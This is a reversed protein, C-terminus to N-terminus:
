AAEGGDPDNRFQLHLEPKIQRSKIEHEVKDTPVAFREASRARVEAAREASGDPLALTRFTFPDAAAGGICPRCAAVFGPLRSLDRAGLLPDFFKALAAGDDPSCAFTIKTRANAGLADRMERTLQGLHQHALVLCLGYARAEALVDEFSRPLSMYNHMEDVYLAVDARKAEPMRSREMVWQWVQAIIMGGLIRSTDEGLLGKPIRVLVIGGSDLFEFLDRKPYSQGVIPRIAGRLLFARVKNLMPAISAERTAVTQRDFQEWFLRLAPDDLRRRIQRRWDENTLLVPIDALTAGPILGLTLCASRMIDDSRPGWSHEYFRKFMSVIHDVVLDLDDGALINLGVASSKDSPDILCVREESGEPLRELIAEILDGKPDIVMAARGAAADQLVMRAVLTSKGTGTEGILHIHHRSDALSIAVPRQNIGSNSVGLERGSTPLLKPPVLSRARGVDIGAIRSTPLTAIRGLEPVSLLFGHEVRRTSIADWARSRRSRLGNRGEFMAFSSALSRVRAKADGRSRGSVALRISCEWLQSAAKEHVERLSADATPNREARPRPNPPNIQFIRVFRGFGSPGQALSKNYSRILKRGRGPPVPRALVQMMSADGRHQTGMAAFIVRLPDADPGEGISLWQPCALVIKATKIHGGGTGLDLDPAVEALCAGAWAADVAREVDIMQISPAVYISVEIDDDRSVVEWSLGPQGSVIRSMKSRVQGHLATWLVAGGGDTIDPPPIVRIRSGGGMVRRDRVNAFVRWAIILVVMLVVAGVVVPIVRHAFATLAQLIWQWMVQPHLLYDLLFRSLPGDPMPIGPDSPIPSPAPQAPAHALFAPAPLSLAILGALAPLPRPSKALAPGLPSLALIRNVPQGGKRPM